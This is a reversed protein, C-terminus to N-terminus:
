STRWTIPEAPSYTCWTGTTITDDLHAALAPHVPRLRNIADRIRATVTKRAREAQDGLRRPRGGLGIAASLGAFLDDREARAMAAREPDAWSEAEDIERDLDRLRGRVQRIAREDLVADAGLGLDARVQPADAAILDVARVPRGPAGLLVAIDALGKAHRLRISTGAFAVTWRGGDRRFEAGDAAPRPPSSGVPPPPDGLRALEDRVAALLAPAGLRQYQQAAADLHRRADDPRGQTAALVGLYHDVTGNVAVAAGTVVVHGPYPALQEYVRGALDPDDLRAALDALFAMAVGWGANRPVMALGTGGFAAFFRARELQVPGGAAAGSGGDLLALLRHIRAAPADRDPFVTDLDATLEALRGQASRLPWLQALWADRADPQGIRAGFDRAQGILAEADPDGDLAALAARRLLVAYRLGPQGTQEAVTFFRSLVARFGPDASELLDNTRLLLSEAQLERDDAAAALESLEDVIALREPATGLVWAVNHGALLCQALAAPADARRALGIAADALRRAEPVDAGSWALIRGLAASVLAPLSGTRGDLQHLARRLLGILEDPPQRATQTHLAHLGLVGRAYREVDGDRDALEVAQRLAQAAPGLAGARRQAEALELLYEARPDPTEGPFALVREWHGVAEEYALRRSAERAALASYRVAPEAQGARVFHYAVEAAAVQPDRALVRAVAGHRAARTDPDLLGYRYERFLDHSFRYRGTLVGARVAEDLLDTAAVVPLETAAALVGAGFQGSLVSATGLLDRCRDSVTALRRGLAQAIGPPVGDVDPLLWALQQVFFPNGGSREVVRAVVAPPPDAGLVEALLGGVEPESLGALPLVASQGALAALLEGVESDAGVDRFAGVALVPANALRRGVFGLLRLSAPDAWHLDDLLLVMPEGTGAVAAVVDEYLQFTEGAREGPAGSLLRALAPRGATQEGRLAERWLWYGPAGSWGRGWGVRARGQAYRALGTLVTTKGIGAEGTVMLLGGTGGFADDARRCLRALVERRGALQGESVAVM